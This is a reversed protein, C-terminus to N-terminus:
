ATKEDKWTEPIWEAPPNNIEQTFLVACRNFKDRYFKQSEALVCIIDRIDTTLQGQGKDEEKSLLTMARWLAQVEKSAIMEPYYKVREEIIRHVANVFGRFMTKVVYHLNINDMLGKEKANKNKNM